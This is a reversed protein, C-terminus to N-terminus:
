ERACKERVWTLAEEKTKLTEELQQEYVRKLAEGIKKGPRFGIEMLDRGGLLPKPKIAEAAFESQKTKLFDYNDLMRHSALCDVRHLELEDAFTPRALLQKLTSLRMKEVNMFNMHNEICAGVEDVLARPARLRELIQVAMRSGVTHHNHFRIRDEGRAFTPPKGVDHLLTAWALRQSPGELLSLAILTHALVDGEPHFQPPQEVAHCAAVEPLVQALLGSTHLLEFARRPRPGLLMKDLEQFTREASIGGIAPANAAIALWTAPEIAFDFRSAFRVARLLRLYDERFRVAPTGIARICRAQLDAKGDVYDIVKGSQPDYFMGNITFDRREADTRSDTFVVREPHRGDATGVDSRFTAVEFPVGGEIVIVVGFHAGVGVTHGFLSMVTAPTANTAIDIDSPAASGLLMDRVYGGAYLAQFGQAALREVISRAIRERSVADPSDSM